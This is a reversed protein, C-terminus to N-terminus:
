RNLLEATDFTVKSCSPAHQGNETFAIHMLMKNPEFVVSHMVVTEAIPTGALLNWATETTLHEAGGSELIQTLRDELLNYRWCDGMPELRKRFHNAAILFGQGDQPERISYGNTMSIIGDFEPVASASGNGAYPWSIM